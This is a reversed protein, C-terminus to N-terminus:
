GFMPNCEHHQRNPVVFFENLLCQRQYQHHQHHHQQYLFFQQIRLNYALLFIFLGAFRMNAPSEVLFFLARSPFCDPPSNESGALVFNQAPAPRSIHFPGTSRKSGGFRLLPITAFGIFCLFPSVEAM